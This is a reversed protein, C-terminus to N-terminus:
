NGGEVVEGQTVFCCMLNARECKMKSAFRRVKRRAAEEVRMGDPQQTSVKLLEEVIAVALRHHLGGGDGHKAYFAIEDEM